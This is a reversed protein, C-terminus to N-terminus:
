PLRSSTSTLSLAHHEVKGSLMGLVLRHKRWPASGSPSSPSPVPWPMPRRYASVRPTLHAGLHGLQHSVVHHLGSNTVEWFCARSICIIYSGLERAVKHKRWRRYNSGQRAASHPRGGGPCRRSASGRRKGTAILRARVRWSPADPWLPPPAQHAGRLCM